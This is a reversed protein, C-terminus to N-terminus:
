SRTKNAQMWDILAQKVYRVESGPGHIYAPGIGDGRMRALVEESVMLLAAAEPPLLEVDSSLAQLAAM